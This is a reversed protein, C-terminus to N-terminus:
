GGGAPVARVPRDGSNSCPLRDARCGRREAAGPSSSRRKASARESVKGGPEATQPPSSAHPPLIRGLSASPGTSNPRCNSWHRSGGGIEHLLRCCLTIQPSTPAVTPKQQSPYWKRFTQRM